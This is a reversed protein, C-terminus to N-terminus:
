IYLVESIYNRLSKKLSNSIGSNSNNTVQEVTSFNCDFFIHLSIVKKETETQTLHQFFFSITFNM